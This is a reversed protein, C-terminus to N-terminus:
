QFEYEFYKRNKYTIYLGDQKNFRVKREIEIGNILVKVKQNELFRGSIIKMLEGCFEKLILVVGNDDNSVDIVVDVIKEGIYNGVMNNIESMEFEFGSECVYDWELDTIMLSAKNNTAENIIKGYEEWTMNLAKVTRM